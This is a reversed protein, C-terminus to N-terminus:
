KQRITVKFLFSGLHQWNKVLQQFARDSNIVDCVPM